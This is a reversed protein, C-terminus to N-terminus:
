LKRRDEEPSSHAHDEGLKVLRIIVLALLTTAGAMFWFGFGASLGIAAALWLSAGTTLGKVKGGNFIIMGAALFAVGSTVAEILRLPDMAVRDTYEDAGDLVELMILCYLSAALGVLMHTRLGAPRKRSERELGILGCLVLAGALRLLVVQWPLATLTLVEDLIPQM